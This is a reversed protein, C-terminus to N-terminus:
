SIINHYLISFIIKIYKGESPVDKKLDIGFVEAGLQVPKLTYFKHMSRIVNNAM